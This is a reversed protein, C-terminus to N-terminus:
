NREGQQRSAEQAEARTRAARERAADLADRRAAQSALPDYATPAKSRAELWDFARVRSGPNGDELLLLNEEELRRELDAGDKARKVFSQVTSPYRGAEGAHRLLMAELVDDFDDGQAAEVLWLWSRREVEFGLTTAPSSVAILAERQAVLSAAIRATQADDLSRALDHLLTTSRAGADGLMAAFSRLSARQQAPVESVLADFSAVVDAEFLATDSPRKVREGLGLAAERAAAACAALEDKVASAAVRDASVLIALAGDEARDPVLSSPAPVIVVVPGNEPTVGAELVVLDRQHGRKAELKSGDQLEVSIAMNVRSAEQGSDHADFSVRLHEDIRGEGVVTRGDKALLDFSATYGPPVLLVTQAVSVSRPLSPAADSGGGAAGPGIAASDLPRAEFERWTKSALAGRGVRMRAAVSPVAVIPDTARQAVFVRAHMAAPELAALPWSELWRLEVQVRDIEREDGADGARERPATGPAESAVVGSLISGEHHSVGTRFSPVPPPAPPPPSACAGALSLAVVARLHAASVVRM